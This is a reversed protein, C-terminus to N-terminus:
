QSVLYGALTVYQDFGTLPGSYSVHATLLRDTPDVYLLIPENTVRKDNNGIVNAHFQVTSQLAVRKISNLDANAPFVLVELDIQSGPAVILGASAHQLVLRQGAPPLSFDFDCFNVGCTGHVTEQYPTPALPDVSQVFLPTARTNNSLTVNSTGTVTVAGSVPIPNTAKNVITVPDSSQDQGQDRGRQGEASVSQGSSLGIAVVAAVIAFSVILSRRTGNM